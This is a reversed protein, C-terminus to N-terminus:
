PPSPQKPSEKGAVVDAWGQVLQARQSQRDGRDYKRKVETGVAHALTYEILESNLHNEDNLHTSATSRFGHVKTLSSLGNRALLANLTRSAMPRTPDRRNPFVFEAHSLAQMERLLAIAQQPLPVTFARREKKREAPIVWLGQDLDIESWRAGTVEGKRLMTLIILRLAIETARDHSGHSLKEFVTGLDAAPLAVHPVQKRPVLIRKPPTPNNEILGRDIAHEFIDYLYRRCNRAVEPATKEIDRILEALENRKLEDVARRGIRPLVHKTLERGVQVATAAALRTEAQKKWSAAVLHFAGDTKLAQQRERERRVAIPHVGSEVLERAGRHLDRAKALTTEPYTGLTNIQDKGNLRYAYRWSKTGTPAVWLYLGGGDRLSYAAAAPKAKEVATATLVSRYSRM